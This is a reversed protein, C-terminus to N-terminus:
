AELAVKSLCIFRALLAQQGWYMAEYRASSMVSSSDKDASMRSISQMSYSSTTILRGQLHHVLGETDLSASAPQEKRSLTIGKWNVRVPLSITSLGTTSAEPLRLMM